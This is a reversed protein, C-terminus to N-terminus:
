YTRDLSFLGYGQQDVVEEDTSETKHVRLVRRFLTALLEQDATGLFEHLKSEACGALIEIWIFLRAPDLEDKKWLDLDLLYMFQEPTTLQILDFANREGIEKVTLFVEM